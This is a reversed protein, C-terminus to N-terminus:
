DLISGILCTPDLVGCPKPTPLPKPVPIPLTDIIPSTCILGVCPIPLPSPGPKPIPLPLPDPCILGVCPIPTPGPTPIPLPDPCILGICPDIIPEPLPDVEPPEIIIVGDVRGFPCFEGTVIDMHGGTHVVKTGAPYQQSRVVMWKEGGPNGAEDKCVTEITQCPNISCEPIANAVIGVEALVDTADIDRMEVVHPVVAM